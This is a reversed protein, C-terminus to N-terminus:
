KMLVMKRCEVYQGATLRYFYVGGALTSGNFETTYTGPQKVENVLTAVDRGLVDYVKVITLQRNVITFQIRTTPNFPSPYNQEVIFAKPLSASPEKVQTVLDSLPRRWISNWAALFIYSDNSSFDYIYAYQDLTLGTDFREWRTGSLDLQYVTQSWDRSVSALLHNKILFLNRFGSSDPLGSNMAEWTNGRDGSVYFGGQFAGVYVRFNHAVANYYWSPIGTDLSDWTNGGDTSRYLRDTQIGLYITSRDTIIAAIRDPFEGSTDLRSWTKGTDVSSFLAGDPNAYLTSGALIISPSGYVGALVSNWSQGSDESRFVCPLPWTDEPIRGYYSASLLVDGVEILETPGISVSSLSDWTLGNDRSLYIYRGSSALLGARTNLLTYISGRPFTLKEWQGLSSPALVAIFFM